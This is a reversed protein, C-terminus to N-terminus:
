CYKCQNNNISFPKFLADNEKPSFHQFDAEDGLMALGYNMDIYTNAGLEKDVYLSEDFYGDYYKHNEFLNM